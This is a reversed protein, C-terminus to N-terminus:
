LLCHFSLVTMISPAYSHAPFLALEMGDVEGGHRDVDIVFFKDTKLAINALPYKQWIKRIENPTLPPKGAFKILPKKNQGIPIVSFGRNAYSVAYNVLNVLM